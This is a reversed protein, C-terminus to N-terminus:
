FLWRQLLDDNKQWNHALFLLADICEPELRSRKASVIDAMLSHVFTLLLWLYGCMIVCCSCRFLREVTVSSAPIALLRRALRALHPYEHQKRKWWVLPDILDGPAFGARDTDLLYKDLEARLLEPLQECLKPESEYVDSPVRLGYVEADTRQKKAKPQSCEVRL